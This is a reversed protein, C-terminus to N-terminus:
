RPVVEAAPDTQVNKGCTEESLTTMYQVQIPAVTIANTVNPQKTEHTKYNNQDTTLTTMYLLPEGSSAVNSCVGYGNWV